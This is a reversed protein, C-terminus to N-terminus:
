PKGGKAQLARLYFLVKWRDEPRVQAAHSPMLGQGFSVIHFIQGDPLGRAHEATLPPPMPFAPIVPGDGQGTRGHCPFCRSQFVAEGRKLNEPTPQLPSKLERGAREAEEKGAAFHLPLHGRAVTGQPPALLTKGDPTNPNPAFTDYPVSDAMDPAYEFARQRPDGACAASLLLAAAPLGTKRTM